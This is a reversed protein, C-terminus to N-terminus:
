VWTKGYGGEIKLKMFIEYKKQIKFVNILSFFLNQM